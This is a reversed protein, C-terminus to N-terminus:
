KPRVANFEHGRHLATRKEAAFRETGTVHVIEASLFLVVNLRRGLQASVDLARVAPLSSVRSAWVGRENHLGFLHQVPEVPGAPKAVPPRKSIRRVHGALRDRLADHPAFNRM